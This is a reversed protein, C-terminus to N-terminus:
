GSVQKIGTDRKNPNINERPSKRRRRKKKKKKISSFIILPICIDPM